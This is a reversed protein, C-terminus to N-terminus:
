NTPYSKNFIKIKTDVNHLETCNLDSHAQSMFTCNILEKKKQFYWKCISQSFKTKNLDMTNFFTLM